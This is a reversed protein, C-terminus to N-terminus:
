ASEVEDWEIAETVWRQVVEDLLPKNIPKPIFDDMGSLRCRDRDEDLVHATAAIIPTRQLKKSSEIRRICRTAELGDMVPMAIDMLVITPAHKEFLDVAIAGNEAIIVDYEEEPIMNTVVAQNVPNDEAVLVTIREDAPEVDSSCPKTAAAEAARLAKATDALTPQAFEVAKGNATREAEIAEDVPVTVRFWVQTGAGLTSDAGIEGGMLEIINKCIALGLGTGEPRQAQPAHTQEFKDFINPLQDAAIGVGTDKVCFCLEIDAGVREGTVEILVHGSDTFKVANGVLNSLIQRIRVDDAIVGEPIDQAYRVIIELDKEVANAQMMKAIEIVTQRLNFGRSLIRMKGAELKSFDLIDNIVRMLAAGCSVIITTLEKQREDLDTTLLVEAMGIIGNMPTRIEHSMSALFESKARDASAASLQAQVLPRVILQNLLVGLVVILLLAASLAAIITAVRFDADLYRAFAVFAAATALAGTAYAFALKKQLIKEAASYARPKLGFAMITGM